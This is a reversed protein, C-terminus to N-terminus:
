RVIALSTACTAIHPDVAGVQGFRGSQSVQDSLKTGATGSMPSIWVVPIQDINFVDITQLFTPLIRQLPGLEEKVKVPNESRRKDIKLVTTM